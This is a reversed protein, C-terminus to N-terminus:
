LTISTGKKTGTRKKVEPEISKIRNQPSGERKNGDKDTFEKAPEIAVEIIFRKGILGNAVKESWSDFDAMLPKRKDPDEHYLTRPKREAATAYLPLNFHLRKEGSKDVYVVVMRDTLRKGDAEGETGIYDIVLMPTGPVKSNPGTEKWEASDVEFVYTGEPIPEWTGGTAVELSGLNALDFSM